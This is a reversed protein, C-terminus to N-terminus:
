MAAPQLPPDEDNSIVFMKQGSTVQGSGNMAQDAYDGSQQDGSM